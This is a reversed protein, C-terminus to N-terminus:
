GVMRRVAALNTQIRTNAPNIRAAKELYPLGQGPKGMNGYCCGISMLYLDCDPALELAQQYLQIALNFHQQQSAAAAKEAIALVKEAWEIDQLTIDKKQDRIGGLDDPGFIEVGPSDLTRKLIDLAQRDMWLLDMQQRSLHKPPSAPAAGAPGAPPKQPTFIKKLWNMKQKEM